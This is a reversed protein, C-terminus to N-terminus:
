AEFGGPQGPRGVSGGGGDLPVAAEYDLRHGLMANRDLQLRGAELAQPSGPPRRQNARPLRGAFVPQEYDGVGLPAVDVNGGGGVPLCEEPAPRRRKAFDGVNIGVRQRDIGQEAGVRQLRQNVAGALKVGAHEHEHAGGIGARGIELVQFEGRAPGDAL